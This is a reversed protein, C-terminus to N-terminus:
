WLSLIGRSGEVPPSIGHVVHTLVVTEPLNGEVEQEPALGAVDSENWLAQAENELTCVVVVATWLALVPDLGDLFAEIELGDDLWEVPEHTVLAVFDDIALEDALFLVMGFDNAVVVDVLEEPVGFTECFDDEAATLTEDVQGGCLAVSTEALYLPIADKEFGVKFVSL